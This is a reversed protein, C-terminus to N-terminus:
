KGVDFAASRTPLPVACGHRIGDPPVVGENASRDLRASPRDEFCDPVRETRGEIRGTRGDCRGHGGLAEEAVFRPIGDASQRHTHGHVGAIGFQAVAIEKPGREIADRAHQFVAVATLNENRGNGDFM